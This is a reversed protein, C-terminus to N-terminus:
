GVERRIKCKNLSHLVATRGIVNDLLFLERARCKQCYDVVAVQGLDLPQAVSPSEVWVRNPVRQEVIQRQFPEWEPHSGHLREGVLEYGDGVYRCEDLQEWTLASLWSVSEISAVLLPEVEKVEDELRYRSSVGHAHATENRLDIIETLLEHTNAPALADQIAPLEPVPGREVLEKILHLWTGFHAGYRFTNRLASNFRGARKIKVALALVGVTRAVGEALKLLAEKQEAPTIATRYKRALAAAHFPYSLEARWVPDELPSLLGGLLRGESASARAHRRVTELDAAAETFINPVIRAMTRGLKERVDVIDEICEVFETDLILDIPVPANRPLERPRDEAEGSNLWECLAAGSNGIPNLVNLSTLASGFEAPLLRWTRGTGVLDGGVCLTMVDHPSASETLEDTSSVTTLDRMRLVPLESGNGVPQGPVRRAVKELQDFRGGWRTNFLLSAPMEYGIETKDVDVWADPTRPIVERALYAEADEGLPINYRERLNPDPLPRGDAGTQLEGAPDSTSLVRLLLKRLGGPLSELDGLVSEFAAATMSPEVGVLTRLRALVRQGHPQKDLHKNLQDVADATVEYRVRLPQEVVIRQYGLEANGLVKATVPLSGSAATTLALRYSDVIEAIQQQTFHKRKSGLSKRMKAWHNRADLVVVKGPLRKRNSVLWLHTSISTNLLLADPLAVIAELLDNEIIWRRIESEGSGAPGLSSSSGSLLIALRGGGEAAPKMHHIAHQLFLLSADSLRPLGAGFRGRFGLREHEQRVETVVTRWAVGFPPAALVLDFRKGAHQDVALTNGLRIQDSAIGRMMLGARCLAYSETNMEQGLLDVRVGPNREALLDAMALLTGGTGATPDYVSVRESVPEYSAVALRAMLGVVDRPTFHEGELTEATRRVLEEFVDAMRQDDVRGADLDVAAFSQLVQHLLGRQDLRIILSDMEYSEFLERLEVPFSKVYWRLNEAVRDPDHLIAPLDLPCLNYFPLRTVEKLAADVDQVGQKRLSGMRDLVASRTPMLLCDLRRLLTFPMVVRHYESSKFDGRLLGAASWILSALNEDRGSTLERERDARHGRSTISRTVSGARRGGRRVM